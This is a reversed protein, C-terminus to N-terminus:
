RTAHRTTIPTPRRESSGSAGLRVPANRLSVGSVCVHTQTNDNDGDTDGHAATFTWRVMRASIGGRYGMSHAQLAM